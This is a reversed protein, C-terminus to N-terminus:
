LRIQGEEFTVGAGDAIKIEGGEVVLEEESGGLVAGHLEPNDRLLADFLVDRLAIPLQLSM